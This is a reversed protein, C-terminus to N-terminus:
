REQQLSAKMKKRTDQLASLMRRIDEESVRDRKDILAEKLVDDAARTLDAYSLGAAERALDEWSVKFTKVSALRDRLM